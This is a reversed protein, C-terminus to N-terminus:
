SVKAQGAGSPAQGSRDGSGDAAPTDLQRAGNDVQISQGAPSQQGSSSAENRKARLELILAIIGVITTAAGALLDPATNILSSGAASSILGMGTAAGVLIVVANSWVSRNAYWNRQQEM